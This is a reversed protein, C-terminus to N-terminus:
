PNICPKTPFQGEAFSDESKGKNKDEHHEESFTELSQTSKMMEIHTALLKREEEWTKEKEQLRM